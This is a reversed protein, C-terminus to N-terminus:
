QTPITILPLKEAGGGEVLTFFFIFATVARKTQWDSDEIWL